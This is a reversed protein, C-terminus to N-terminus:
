RQRDIRNKLIGVPCYKIKTKRNIGGQQYVEFDLLFVFIFYRGTAISLFRISFGFIFYRGTPISLFRISFCFYFVARLNKLM